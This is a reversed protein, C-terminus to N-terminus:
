EKYEGFTHPLQQSQRWLLSKMERLEDAYEPDDALNRKEGPDTTLDYLRVRPNSPDGVKPNFRKSDPAAMDVLLKMGDNRTIAREFGIESYAYERGSPKAPDLLHDAVSVGHLGADDAPTTGALEFLTPALDVNQVIEDSVSGAPIHGPWYAMAASNIGHDKNSWKGWAGHDSIVFVLTNSAVGSDELQQVIAGVMDDLWIVDPLYKGDIGQERLKGARELVSQRSPMGSDIGEVLGVATIRPDAILSNHDPNNEIDYAPPWHPMTPNVVLLFPKDAEAQQEIFERAKWAIWEPNHKMVDIYFNDPQVNDHYLAEAYTYGGAYASQQALEFNHQLKALKGPDGLGTKGTTKEREGMFGLHFKGVIGTAYGADRLTAPLNWSEAPRNQEDGLTQLVFPVEDPPYARLVPPTASAYRGTQLAIRSPACLATNVYFKKFVLGDDALRDMNPTPWGDENFGFQDRNQDDTYFIVINPRDAQAAFLQASALLVLICFRYM